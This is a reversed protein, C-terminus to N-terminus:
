GKTIARLIFPVWEKNGNQLGTKRYTFGRFLLFVCQTTAKIDMERLAGQRVGERLLNGILERMGEEILHIENGLFPEYLGAEDFLIQGLFPNEDFYRTSLDCLLRLKEVPDTLQKMQGTLLKRFSLAESMVLEALIKEKSEFVEYVTRKSMGAGEAIEDVATKKFGFRGFREKAASLVKQKKEQDLDTEESTAVNAGRM